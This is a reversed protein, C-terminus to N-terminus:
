QKEMSYKDFGGGFGNPEIKKVEFGIKEYFGFTYQSTELMAKYTPFLEQMKNVRFLTFEKGIGKRHFDSHVMGWSLGAKNFRKDIYVGGCAIIEGEKEAVFYENSNPTDLWRNFDLREHEAFYKPFNSEFIELCRNKDEKTFNRITLM